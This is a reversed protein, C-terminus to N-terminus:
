SLTGVVLLSLWGKLVINENWIRMMAFDIWSLRLVSVDTTLTMGDLIVVIIISLVCLVNLNFM